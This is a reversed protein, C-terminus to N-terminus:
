SNTMNMLNKIYYFHDEINIFILITVGKQVHDRIFHHKINIHKSRSHQTPNKALNLILITM